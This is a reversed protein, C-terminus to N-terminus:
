AAVPPRNPTPRPLPQRFSTNAPSLSRTKPMSHSSCPSTRASVTTSVRAASADEARALAVRLRDVSYEMEAHAAPPISSNWVQRFTNPAVSTSGRVPTVRGNMLRPPELM